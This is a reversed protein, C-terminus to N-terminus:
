EYKVTTAGYPTGDAPANEMLFLEYCSGKIEGLSYAFTMLQGNIYAKIDDADSLDFTLSSSNESLFNIVYYVDGTDTEREEADLITNSDNPIVLYQNAANNPNYLDFSRYGDAMSQCWYATPDNDLFTLYNKASNSYLTVDGASSQSTGKSASENTFANIAASIISVLSSIQLDAKRRLTQDKQESCERTIFQQASRWLGQQM